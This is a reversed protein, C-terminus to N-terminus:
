WTRGATTVAGLSLGYVLHGVLSAAVPGKGMPHGVIPVGTVTRHIPFLTLVWLLAGYVLGLWIVLLPSLQGALIPFPVGALGGNLFHLSFIGFVSLVSPDSGSLKSWIVQNEHWELVGTLGWRRWFMSELSTMLATSALGILLGHLGLEFWQAM